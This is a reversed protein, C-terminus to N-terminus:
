EIQKIFHHTALIFGKNLYLRHADHRQFGSDLSVHKYGNEKALEFVYDLLKAGYGKGRYERLTVLDDIYYQKGNFLYQIYRFGVAAAAKDEVEIFALQYGENMIEKVMPVFSHEELHPRLEKIVEWCKVIDHDNKALQINM